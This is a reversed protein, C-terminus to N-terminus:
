ASERTKRGWGEPLRASDLSAAPTVRPAYGAVAGGYVGYGYRGYGYADPGKTPLMTMIIGVAPHGVAELTAIAGAFEAKRTKGAAAIVISGRTLRSVLAADTVPLLPSLDLIVIDSDAEITALLQAMARSGLLESPNPPITGAPLVRLTGRGWSQLADQLAVRGILVDTLGVAGEIGLFASLSPRRLDADIITVRAGSDALTIALNAATTTKGESPISSTVVFSRSTSGLELFQLNTRLIRYAEARAGHPDAQVILPRKRSLPDFSIGGIIPTSTIAEVDHEGRIRTDLVKMLLALGFGGALGVVCGLAINLPVNPSVPEDPVTAPALISVSVPSEGGGTPETIERIVARFQATVANAIAAAEDPSARVVSIRINVTDIPATASVSAALEAASEELGLSDRVPDLVKPTDVAEAYSKVQNQAFTGGQALEGVTDASQVYVFVLTSAEYQPPSLTSVVAAGAGGIVLFAVIMAWRKRVIHLYDRIEM